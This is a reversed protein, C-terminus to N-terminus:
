IFDIIKHARMDWTYKEKVEAYSNNTIKERLTRNEMIESIGKKLDQASDPNVLFANEKHKLIEKLSPLDSSIIPRKAAMYEFLKLPSTHHSSIRSKGSNPLILIDAAKLYLPIESHKKQGLIYINKNKDLDAAFKFKKIEKETGGIFIFNYDPSMISSALLTYVGKWLYLHGVYMVIPKENPLSFKQRSEEKSIKIDFKELDVADSATLINSSDLSTSVILDKKLGETISVIKNVKKLCHKYLRSQKKPVTHTEYIIKHKKSIFLLPYLDRTYVVFDKKEKKLYKKLSRAFTISQIIFALPGLFADFRITDFCSLRIVQFSKKINYYTFIDQKIKNVRNPIILEIERNAKAFAECMKSIQIGHAKETPIRVNAVYIIKQKKDM